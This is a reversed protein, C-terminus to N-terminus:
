LYGSLGKVSLQPQRVGEALDMGVLWSWSLSESRRFNHSGRAGSQVHESNSAPCKESAHKFNGRTIFQCFRRTEKQQVVGQSIRRVLVDAKLRSSNVANSTFFATTKNLLTQCIPRSFRPFRRNLLAANVRESAERILAADKSMM